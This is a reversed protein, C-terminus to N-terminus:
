AARLVLIERTLRRHVYVYHQEVINFGANNAIDPAGTGKPSAIVTRAGKDLIMRAEPLFQELIKRTSSKLTSAGTGYPPDTAIAEVRTLPLRRADARIYSLSNLKFHSMNRRAGRVMRKVADLGITRCGLMSAEILLGGVGCFPDLFLSGNKVGSLNVMCRALKPMMTSPHFVVRKRPRRAAVNGLPRQYKCLGLHFAEGTLYGRFLRGPNTLDVKAGTLKALLGGVDREIDTRQLNKSVGGFRSVRVSFTEGKGLLSNWDTSTVSEEISSYDAKSESIAIAAEDIFAARGPINWALGDQATKVRVLKYAVDDIEYKVGYTDLITKTEALPLTPHEGSLVLLNTSINVIIAQFRLLIYALGSLGNEFIYIWFKVVYTSSYRLTKFLDFPIRFLFRVNSRLFGLSLPFFGRPRSRVM